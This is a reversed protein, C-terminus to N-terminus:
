FAVLPGIGLPSTRGELGFYMTKGFFFPLGLLNESSSSTPPRGIGDIVVANANLASTPDAIAINIPQQNDLGLGTLDVASFTASVTTPTPPAYLGNTGVPLASPFVYDDTGSDVLVRSVTGNVTLLGLGTSDLSFANVVGPQNDPQTGIGFVMQGAVPSTGFNDIAPLKIVLGNNDAAFSAVPQTTQMRTPLFTPTCDNASTCSYYTTSVVCDACNSFPTGVGLIGNSDRFKRQQAVGNLTSCASPVPISNQDATADTAATPAGDIVAIPLNKATEGAMRLTVVKMKGWAYGSGYRACMALRNNNSDQEDAFSAGGDSLAYDYIKLGVSGTDVVIDDITQCNTGAADSCLTVSTLLRNDGSQSLTTATQITPRDIRVPQVNDLYVPPTAATVHSSSDDNGGCSALLVAVGIYGYRLVKLM